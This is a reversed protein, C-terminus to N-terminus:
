FISSTKDAMLLQIDMALRGSHRNCKCRRCRCAMTIMDGMAIQPELTSRRWQPGWDFIKDEGSAAAYEADAAFVSTQVVSNRFVIGDGVNLIVLQASTKLPDAHISVKNVHLKSATRHMYAYQGYGVFAAILLVAFVVKSANVPSLRRYTLSNGSLDLISSEARLSGIIVSAAIVGSVSL